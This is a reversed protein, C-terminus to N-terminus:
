ESLALAIAENLPMKGGERWTPIFVAEGLKQSLLEVAKEYRPMDLPPIPINDTERLAEEAGFLKTAKEWQEEALALEAFCRMIEAIPQKYDTKQFIILSQKSLSHSKNLNGYILYAKALDGYSFAIDIWDKLKERIALCEELLRIAQEIQGLLLLSIALNDLAYGIGKKDNLERFIALSQEAFAAGRQGDNNFQINAFSMNVFAYGIRAKNKHKQAQALQWEYLKITKATDNANPSFFSWECKCNRCKFIYLKIKEAKSQYYVLLGGEVLSVFLVLSLGGTDLIVVLCYLLFNTILFAFIPNRSDVPAFVKPLLGPGSDVM